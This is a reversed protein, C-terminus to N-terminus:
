HNLAIFQVTTGSPDTCYFSRAGDRHTHPETKMTVEHSKLYEYWHDILEHTSVIFGIHDLKQIGYPTQDKPLRHLALNDNGSSLYVNDPDPRWQVQMGIINVYFDECVELDNIFLAVHYLGIVSPTNNM